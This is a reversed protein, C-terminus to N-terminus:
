VHCNEVFLTWSSVHGLPLSDQATKTLSWFALVLGLVTKFSLGAKCKKKCCPRKLALAVREASKGNQQYSTLMTGPHSLKKVSKGALVVVFLIHYCYGMLFFCIIIFMPQILHKSGWCGYITTSELVFEEYFWPGWTGKGEKGPAWWGWECLCLSHQKCLWLQQRQWLQVFLCQVAATGHTIDFPKPKSRTNFKNCIASCFIFTSCFTFSFGKNKTKQPPGHHSFYVLHNTLQWWQTGTLAVSWLLFILRATTVVHNTERSSGWGREM